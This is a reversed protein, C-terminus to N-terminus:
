ATKTGPTTIDRSFTTVDRSRRLVRVVEIRPGRVRYFIVYRQFISSYMGHMLDERPLGIEPNRALLACHAEFGAAFGQAAALNDFGSHRWADTSIATSEWIRKLDACAVFTFFMEAPATM